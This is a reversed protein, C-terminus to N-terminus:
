LINVKKNVYELVKEINTDGEYKEEKIFKDLEKQKIKSLECYDCM